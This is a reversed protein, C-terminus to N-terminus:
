RLAGRGVALRGAFGCGFGARRGYAARRTFQAIGGRGDLHQFPQLRDPTTRAHIDAAGVFLRQMVQKGFDDVIRHVFRHGAVGIDDGVFEVGVAEQRNGIVPAADRNIRMGFEGVFGREFHDHGGQMRAALEIGFHVFGGATQVADANRDDIRQRFQAFDFHCAALLKITLHKRAAMCLTRDFHDATHRVPAAGFHTELRIVLNEAFM